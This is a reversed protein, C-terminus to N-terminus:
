IVINVSSHKYTRGCRISPSSFLLLHRSDGRRVIPTPSARLLGRYLSWLTPVRHAALRYFPTHPRVARLSSVIRAINQRHHALHAEPTPTLTTTLVHSSMIAHVFGNSSQVHSQRGGGVNNERSAREAAVVATAISAVPLTKGSHSECSCGVDLGHRRREKNM